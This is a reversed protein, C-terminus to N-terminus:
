ILVKRQTYGKVLFRIKQDADECYINPIREPWFKLFLNPIILSSTFDLSINWLPM